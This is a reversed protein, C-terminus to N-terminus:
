AGDGGSVERMADAVAVSSPTGDADLGAIVGDVDAPRNQTLKLKAELRTIPVEIGVIARLQGAVFAPPADDVSWPEGRHGEHKESLRRVLAEVWVPDDHVVLPGHVHVTVYNWTPVVRGHERKSAYWSPSVYADPGRVIVLADTLTPERWQDNNRALHGLLRGHEGESGDYVFPLLTAMLGATTSTVLEAAAHHRLLDRVTEDDPAAFHAPVYVDGV